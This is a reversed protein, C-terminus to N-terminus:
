RCLKSLRMEKTYYNQVRESHPTLGHEWCPSKKYKAPLPQRTQLLEIVEQLDKEKYGM